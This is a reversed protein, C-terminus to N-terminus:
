LPMLGLVLDGGKHTGTVKMVEWFNWRWINDWQPSPVEVLTKPLSLCETSLLGEPQADNQPQSLSGQMRCKGHTPSYYELNTQLCIQTKTEARIRKDEHHQVPERYTEIEGITFNNPLLTMSTFKGDLHLSFQAYLACLM